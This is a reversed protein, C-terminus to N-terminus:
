TTSYHVRGIVWCTTKALWGGTGVTQIRCICDIM